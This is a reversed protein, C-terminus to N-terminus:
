SAIMLRTLVVLELYRMDFPKTVYAYAGLETAERAIQEDQIGTAMVIGVNPDIERIKKLTMIGDMGPMTVDLLIMTPKEKEVLMVAEEGSRAEITKLGKKQFFVILFRRVGEDDDVVLITENKKQEPEGFIRHKAALIKNVRDRFESMGLGKRIVDIAGKEMAEKELEPTVSGSFIVVPVKNNKHNPMRRLLSLGDEGPIQIDLLILDPKQTQLIEFIQEGRAVCIVEHGDRTFLDYCFQRVGSEDDAILIKSM